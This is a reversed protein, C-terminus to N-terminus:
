KFDSDGIFERLLSDGPVHHAPIPSFNDLFSQIRRAEAYEEHLPKVARLLPEAYVKLVGLEYDLASNFVADAGNQFPFIWRREGRKVMQWLGLTRRADLGRFQADRVLRRLLRYDTTSTRNHDDLNLQTLASLYIGFKHEKAVLPTLEPNLGHIGELILIENNCMSIFKGSPVSQGTLFDYRPLEVKDGAFLHILHDNLTAVDLAELCEYDPKGTEDQPTRSRDVFYNDLEINIPNFGLIRLQIALKKSTTTKGSSSPGAILVVRVMGTREAIKDAIAALKKNQLTEAMTIFDQIKGRAIINNLAGVSHSGLIRARERYEESITYLVPEDRFDQLQEPNGSEPYRLLFGDRYIRLEWTQLIGTSPVLPATHFDRFGACENLPIFPENSHEILLRTDKQGNAEFYKMARIWSWQELGIRIDEEVLSRMKETLAVIERENLPIEDDYYHYFSAGISMGAVLRRDPYLERSAKALLFCLSRRYTASGQSSHLYVPALSCDSFLLDNASRLENDVLVATLGTATLGASSIADGARVAEPYGITRGEPFTVLIEKM